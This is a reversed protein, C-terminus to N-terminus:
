MENSLLVTFFDTRWIIKYENKIMLYNNPYLIVDLIIDNKNIIKSDNVHGHIKLTKDKCHSNFLYRPSWM